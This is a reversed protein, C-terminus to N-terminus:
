SLALGLDAALENLRRDRTWLTARSLRASALLHVDVIGVGRGFLRHTDIFQWAEWHELEAAM